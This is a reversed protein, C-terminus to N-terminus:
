APDSLDECNIGARSGQVSSRHIQRGSEQHSRRRSCPKPANDREDTKSTLLRLRECSAHRFKLAKPSATAMGFRSSFRRNKALTVIGPSIDQCRVYREDLQDVGFAGINRRRTEDNFMEM